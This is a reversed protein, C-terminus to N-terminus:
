APLNVKRVLVQYQYTASKKKLSPYFYIKVEFLRYIEENQGEKENKCALTFERRIIKKNRNPLSLEADPLSYTEKNKKLTPLKKWPIENRLLKEKIESFTWDALREGEIEWLFTMEQRQMQMPRLILPLGCLLILSISILIELLIFSRKKM